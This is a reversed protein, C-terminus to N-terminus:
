ASKLYALLKPRIERMARARHSLDGKTGIGLEAFTQDLQQLLERLEGLRRGQEGVGSRWIPETPTPLEVWPALHKLEELAYRCQSEVARAWWAVDAGCADAVGVLDGAAAVIRQLVQYSAGLTQPM